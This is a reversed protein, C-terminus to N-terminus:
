GGPVFNLELVAHRGPDLLVGCSVALEQVDFSRVLDEATDISQALHVSHPVWFLARVLGHLELAALLVPL